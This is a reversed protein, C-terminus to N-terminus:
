FSDEFLRYYKENAVELMEKDGRSDGYAYIYEYKSLEYKEKIRNAKEIGYCNRGLLNGTVIDTVELKTAILELENEDCWPKLYCELSASVVVVTHGREKHWQIKEMASSRVIKGIHKLSYENAIRYFEDKQIGKLFWSLVKQKAKYNPILKLKYALLIPSLVVVGALFKGNGVAFRTFKLLSDGKVITGDFDLFAISKQNM